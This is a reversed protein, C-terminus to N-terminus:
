GSAKPRELLILLAPRRRGRLESDAVQFANLLGDKVDKLIHGVSMAAIQADFEAPNSVTIPRASDPGVNTGQIGAPVPSPTPATVGSFVPM